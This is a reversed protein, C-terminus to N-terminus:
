GWLCWNHLEKFTKKGEKSMRIIGDKKVLIGSSLLYNAYKEPMNITTRGELLSNGLHLVYDILDNKVPDNMDTDLYNKMAEINGLFTIAKFEDVFVGYGMERLKKEAREINFEEEPKVGSRCRAADECEETKIDGMLSKRSM